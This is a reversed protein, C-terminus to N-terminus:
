LLLVEPKLVKFQSRRYEIIGDQRMRGLERVMASRDLQLYEALESQSFAIHFECTQCREMEDALYLLVRERISKHSLIDMKRNLVLNKRASLLLLNEIIMTRFRCQSANQTIINEMHIKLVKTDRVAVIRSTSKHSRSCVISEGYVDGPLLKEIITRTGAATEVVINVEGAIIIGVENIVTGVDLLCDGRPYDSEFAGLCKLALIISDDAMGQFMLCKKLVQLEM